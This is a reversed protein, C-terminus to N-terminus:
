LRQKGSVQAVKADQTANLRSTSSESVQAHAVNLQMRQRTRTCRQAVTSSSKSVQAAKASKHQMSSVQAANASMVSMLQKRQWSFALAKSSKFQQRQKPTLRHLIGASSLPILAPRLSAFVKHMFHTFTSYIYLPLRLLPLRCIGILSLDPYNFEDVM